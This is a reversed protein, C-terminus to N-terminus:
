VEVRTPLDLAQHHMLVITINRNYAMEAVSLISQLRHFGPNLATCLSTRWLQLRSIIMNGEGQGVFM